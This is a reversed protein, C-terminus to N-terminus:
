KTQRRMAQACARDIDERLGADDLWGRAEPFEASLAAEIDQWSSCKGTACLADVRRSFAIRKEEKKM